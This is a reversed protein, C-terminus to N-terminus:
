PNQQRPTAWATVGQADCGCGDIPRLPPESGERHDEVNEAATDVEANSGMLPDWRAEKVNEFADNLITTIKAKTMNTTPKWSGYGAAECRKTM